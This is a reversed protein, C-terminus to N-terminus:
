YHLLARKILLIQGLMIIGLLSIFSRKLTKHRFMIMGLLCGISGGFLAVTLLTKEAIRAKGKAAASKDIGMLIWEAVNIALLYLVPFGLKIGM